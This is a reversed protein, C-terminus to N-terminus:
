CEKGVRREESRVGEALARQHRVYTEQVIDEAEIVSGVMRYAISFLLPRLTEPTDREATRAATTPRMPGRSSIAATATVGINAPRCDPAEPRAPPPARAGATQAPRQARPGRTPGM